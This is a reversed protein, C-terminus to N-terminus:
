RKNRDAGTESSKFIRGITRALLRWEAGTLTEARRTGDIGSKELVTEVEVLDKLFSHKLNNSLTKRRQTFCASVIKTFLIEDGSSLGSDIPVLSVVASTVKPRPRFAGPGVDFLKTINFSNQAIVSLYGRDNSSPNAVLRDVVERQLMFVAREIRARLEAVRQIIATGINYPLNGVVKLGSMPLVSELDTELFDGNIVTAQPRDSYRDSLSAAFEDDKEILIIRGAAEVLHETLAGRGPGIELVTDGPNFDLAAIIKEVVNHDILFNQGLSRKAFPKESRGM